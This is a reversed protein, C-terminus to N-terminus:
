VEDSYMRRVMEEFSTTPRWGTATTLRSHDGTLAPKSRVLRTRDEIIAPQVDALKSCVRLWDSVTHLKGSAIVYTDSEGPQLASWMAEVYDPAYGWDCSAQLDGLVMPAASGARIAKIGKIIRQSLFRDPRYISEHNFLIGVSAYVGCNRRFHESLQLGFYKTLGYLCEPQPRTREDVVACDASGYILSSCAYFVRAAPVSAVVADLVAAYATVNVSMSLMADQANTLGPEESSHHYAALYYIEDPRQTQVLERLRGHDVVDLQISHDCWPNGAGRSVGTVRYGKNQLARSLLLGDQGGSGVILASKM